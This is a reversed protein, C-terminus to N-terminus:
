CFHEIIDEFKEKPCFFVNKDDGVINKCAEKVSEEVGFDVVIVENKNIFNLLNSAVFAAYVEEPLKKDEPFGAMLTVVKGTGRGQLVKQFIIYGIFFMGCLILVLSLADIITEFM